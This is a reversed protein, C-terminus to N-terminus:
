GEKSLPKGGKSKPRLKEIRGLDPCDLSKSLDRLEKINGKNREEWRMHKGVAMDAVEKNQSMEGTIPNLHLPHMEYKTPMGEKITDVLEKARSWARDKDTGNLKPPTKTEINHDLEKIKNRIASKDTPPKVFFRGNFAPKTMALSAQLGDRRKELEKIKERSLYTGPRHQGRSKRSTIIFAM